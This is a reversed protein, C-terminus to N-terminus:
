GTFPSFFFNNNTADPTPVLARLASDYQVRRQSLYDHQQRHPLQRSGGCCLRRPHPDAGGRRRHSQALGGRAASDVGQGLRHTQRRCALEDDSQRGLNPRPPGGHASACGAADTHLPQGTPVDGPARRLVGGVACLGLWLLIAIFEKKAREDDVDSVVVARAAGAGGLIVLLVLLGFMMTRLLTHTNKTRRLSRQAGPGRPVALM